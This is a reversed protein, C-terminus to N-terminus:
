FDQVDSKPKKSFAKKLLLYDLYYLVRISFSNTQPTNITKSFDDFYNYNIQDGQSIIQNKWVISLESGPAFYWIFQLDVTFANFNINANENYTSNNLCGESNLTYYQFYEAQSWYHRARITLSAKNNFIYRASLINNITQIDRRGFYITPIGTTAWVTDVWGYNNMDKEYDISLTVSLRDSIRLRPAIGFFCTFNDNGPNNRIELTHQYRFMKRPDTGPQWSLGYNLTTKYVWGWIRPEYYDNFGLPQVYLTMTNVWQNVFKTSNTIQFQLTKFRNPKYLTSYDTTFSNFSSLIKGVPERISYSLELHNLTENNYLLFGMDNPDYTDGTEERTLTYQFKGSPKSISLVYQHGFDPKSHVQYKQSVNL